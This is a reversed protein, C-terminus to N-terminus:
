RARVLRPDTIDRLGDGLLGFGLVAVVICLGPYIALQPALYMLTQAESLMRGWSSAPPQAGLGLYSLAAEALIAVAFEITAQVIVAAAVNPLIHDRSIAFRGRGAARAAAVYDRTWIQNASARTVRAFIPINIFSIALVANTLSPGFVAALMIAFLLAPFAFGLDALRMVADEVWGGLASALLGLGVGISGGLLVAVLAVTMSNRAAAMLQAVVDRGLQDTGLWHETSPPAFKTGISMAQPDHPAWVLSLAAVGVVLSVLLAGLLFNAPLRKM